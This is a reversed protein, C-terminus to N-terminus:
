NALVFNVEITTEVMAPQGNVLYPEYRWWRVADAAAVSLSKPGSVIKVQTVKGDASVVAGLLM